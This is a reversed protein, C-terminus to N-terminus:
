PRLLAGGTVKARTTERRGFRHGKVADGRICDGGASKAMQLYQETTQLLRGPGRVNESLTAIGLSITIPIHVGQFIIKRSRIAARIRQALMRAESDSIERALVAFRGAGYRAFADDGRLARGVIRTFTKLVFNGGPQGHMSNIQMFQDIEFILLALTKDHREAHSCAAAIQDCIYKKTYIGTLADRIEGDVLEQHFLREINDQYSFKLVADPGINFKDGDSLKKRRVQAGNLFTGNTSGLDELVVSGEPNILIKAHRRSAHRNTLRVDADRGRGILTASETPLAYTMGTPGGSLVTLYPKAQAAESRSTSPAKADHPVM